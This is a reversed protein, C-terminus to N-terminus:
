TIFYYFPKQWNPVLENSLLVFYNSQFNSVNCTLWSSFLNPIGSASSFHSEDNAINHYTIRVKPQDILVTDQIVVDPGNPLFEPKIMSLMRWLSSLWPDLSAEYSCIIIGDKTM